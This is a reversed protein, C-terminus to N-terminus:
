AGFYAGQEKLLKRLEGTDLDAPSQGTRAALAAATGAAQGLAMCCPIMRTSSAAVAEASIHRGALLLNGTKKPLLCGYPVGYFPGNQITIFTGKEDDKNHSDM